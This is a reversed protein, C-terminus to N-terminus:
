PLGRREQLALAAETEKDVFCLFCECAYGLSLKKCGGRADSSKRFLDRAKELGVLVGQCGFERLLNVLADRDEMQTDGSRGRTMVYLNAAGVEDVTFRM